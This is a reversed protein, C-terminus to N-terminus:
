FKFGIAAKILAGHVISRDYRAGSPISGVPGPKETDTGAYEGHDYDGLLRIGYLVTGRIFLRGGLSFDGICGLRLWFSSRDVPNGDYHRQLGGGSPAIYHNRGNVAMYLPLQFEFGLAPAFSISENFDIPIKGLVCFDLSMLFSNAPTPPFAFLAGVSAEVYKIDFFAYAGVGLGYTTNRTWKTDEDLEGDYSIKTPGNIDLLFIAGGGTSMELASVGGVVLVALILIFFGRKAM